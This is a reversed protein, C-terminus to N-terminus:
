AHSTVIPVGYRVIANSVDGPTLRAADYDVTIHDLSPAIRIRQIGYCSHLNSVAEADDDNLPRLLSFDLQVKTM